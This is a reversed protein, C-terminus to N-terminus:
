ATLKSQVEDIIAAVEKRLIIDAPPKAEIADYEAQLEALHKDIALIKGEYNLITYHEETTLYKIETPEKGEEPKKYILNAYIRELTHKRKSLALIKKALGELARAMVRQHKVVWREHEPDDILDDAWEQWYRKVTPRSCGVQTAAASPTIGDMFFLLKLERIQDDTIRTYDGQESRKVLTYIPSKQEM